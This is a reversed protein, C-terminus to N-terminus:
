KPYFGKSRLKNVLSKLRQIAVFSNPYDMFSLPSLSLIAEFEDHSYDLKKCVYEYDSKQLIVDYPPKSLEQLALQRTIQGSNILDSLHGYRKDIKFKRPLIYGQYFRTYISEHHKGGYSTWGIAERLIREANSKDYDIYNLLSIMRVGKFVNLWALYQLSFHPYTTLPMGGFCKHISKIYKWDSHGYSWSPVYIAESSFNMGSLIYKINFKDATNWLLGFIAHDSPIEGDPTSSSLFSRQLSKFEDWDIVHTILDINFKRVINEINKIALETNWGNDLHVALPRLGLDKVLYAVYSSDVGGSLGILCNYQSNQGSRKIKSVINELGKGSGLDQNIRTSVLSSYRVCHKCVSDLNFSIDPDVINDMVCKVCQKYM